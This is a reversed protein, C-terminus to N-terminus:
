SALEQFGGSTAEALEGQGADSARSRLMGQGGFRRHVGRSGLPDDEQEHLAPGALDVCEIVFGLQGPPIALFRFERMTSRLLGHFDHLMQPAKAPVPLASLVNGAKKWFDGSVNVIEAKQVSHVCFSDRVPRCCKEQM